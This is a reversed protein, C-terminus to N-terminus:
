IDISKFSDGGCAKAGYLCREAAEVLERADFNKPPMTLAALGISITLSHGGVVFRKQSDTRVEHIMQRAMEVGQARDCDELIIAFGGDGCFLRVDGPDFVRDMVSELSSALQQAGDLSCHLVLDEFQDIEVFLFSISCRARRCSNIAANLRGEYVADQPQTVPAVAVASQTPERQSEGSATALCQTVGVGSDEVLLSLREHAEALVQRYDVDAPLNVSLVDALEGIKESMKSVLAELSEFSVGHFLQMADLLLALVEARGQTLIEALLEAVYLIQALSRHERPLNLLESPNRPAAVARALVAPLGWHDLLRASFAAHDFGLTEIELDLLDGGDAFVQNLFTLYSQGLDQVLALMGIDQLLGAIFADDGSSKWFREELERAAIAKVLTHRWYRHLVEMELGDFLEKPLSFGLVLMKLPKTGLLALAQNLDSVKRSLGFLSSNAVRLIKATLAPDNQICDKLAEADVTPHNTLEMVQMAVAPLSYMGRARQVLQDLVGITSAIESM